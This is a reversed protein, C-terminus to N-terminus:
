DEIIENPYVGWIATKPMWGKRGDIHLRCWDRQCALIRGVVGPQALLLGSSTTDAARHLVQADDLVLASRAGSLMSKHIWGTAGEHDRVERWHEFEQTIEIPLHKRKFVWRISYRTGPGGRVNVEDSRLSVFRPIPLDQAFTAIPTALLLCFLTYLIVHRM